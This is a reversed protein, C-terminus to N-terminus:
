DQLHSLIRLSSFTLEMFRRSLTDQQHTFVIPFFCTKAMTSEIIIRLNNNVEVTSFDM